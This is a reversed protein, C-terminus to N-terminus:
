RGLWWQDLGPIPEGDLPIHVDPSTNDNIVNGFRDLAQGTSKYYRVYGDPYRRTPDMFRVSDPDGLAGERQIVVGRGNWATRSAYGEPVATDYGGGSPRFGAGSKPAATADSTAEGGGSGGAEDVLSGGGDGCGDGGGTADDFCNTGTPDSHVSPNADAYAYTNLQTPALVTGPLPDHVTFRGIAPDYWRARMYLLGSPDQLQGAYGLYSPTSSGYSQSIAGYARSRVSATVTGAALAASM